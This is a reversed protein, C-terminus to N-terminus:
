STQPLDSVPEGTWRDIIVYHDIRHQNRSIIDGIESRHHSMRYPYGEHWPRVDDGILRLRLEYRPWYRYKLAIWHRWHHIILWAGMATGAIYALILWSMAFIRERAISISTYIRYDVLM